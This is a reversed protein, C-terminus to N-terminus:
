DISKVNEIYEVVDGVTSIDELEEEEVEIEFEDEISMILELIDVSDANLDDQFSTGMTVDGELNFQEFIIEKITEFVM